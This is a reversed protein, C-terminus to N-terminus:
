ARPPPADPIALFHRLLSPRVAIPRSTTVVPISTTAPMVGAGAFMSLLAADTPACANQLRCEGPKPAAHRPTKGHHMPCTAGAVEEPCDCFQVADAFGAAALAVPAVLGGSQFLIWAAIIWSLRRRLTTM